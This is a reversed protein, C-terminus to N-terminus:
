FSTTLMCLILFGKPEHCKVLYIMAPIFNNLTARRGETIKYSLRMKNYSYTYLFLLRRPSNGGAIHM